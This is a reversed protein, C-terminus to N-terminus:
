ASEIPTLEYGGRAADAKRLEQIEAAQHEVDMYHQFSAPTLHDMVEARTKINGGTASSEEFLPQMKFQCFDCLEQVEAPSIDGKDARVVLMNGNRKQWYEPALGWSSDIGPDAEMHLFAATGNSRSGTENELNKDLPYKEAKVPLGVLTSIPSSRALFVPHDKPVEVAVFKRKFKDIDGCCNFKVGKAKYKLPYNPFADALFPQGYTLLYDTINRFDTMTIDEHFGLNEDQEKVVVVPGAWFHPAKGKTVLLISKNVEVGSRAYDGSTYLQLHDKFDLDRLMNRKTYVRSFSQSGLIRELQPM